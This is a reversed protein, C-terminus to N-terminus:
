VAEKFKDAIELWRKRWKEFLEKEKRYRKIFYPCPNIKISEGDILLRYITAKDDCRGAMALCRRRKQKRIERDAESKLYVLTTGSAELDEEEMAISYATRAKLESM